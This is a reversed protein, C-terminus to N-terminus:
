SFVAYKEPDLVARARFTRARMLVDSSGWGGGNCQRARSRARVEWSLANIGTGPVRLTRLHVGTPSYFQVMSAERMDASTQSGAVALVTGSTNWKVRTARLSTDILVM